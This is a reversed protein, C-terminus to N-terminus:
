KKMEPPRTDYPNFRSVKDNAKTYLWTLIQIAFADNPDNHRRILERRAAARTHPPVYVRQAVEQETMIGAATREAYRAMHDFPYVLDSMLSRLNLDHHLRARWRTPPLDTHKLLLKIRAAWHQTRAAEAIDGEAPNSRKMVAVFREWLDLGTVEDPQPDDSKEIVLKAASHLIEQIDLATRKQGDNCLITERLTLDGSAILFAEKKNKPLSGMLSVIYDHNLVNQHEVVRLILSAAAKQTFDAITSRLAEGTRREVRVFGDPVSDNSSHGPYHVVVIGKGNHASSAAYRTIQDKQVLRFGIDSLFGAGAWPSTVTHAELLEELPIPDEVRPLPSLLNLHYGRRELPHEDKGRVIDPRDDYSAAHDYLTPPSSGKKIPLKVPYALALLTQITVLLARRSIAADRPGLSEPGCGELHNGAEDKISAGNDLWVQHVPNGRYFTGFGAREFTTPRPMRNVTVGASPRLELEDGMIRPPMGTRFDEPTYLVPEFDDLAAAAALLGAADLFDGGIALRQHRDTEGAM